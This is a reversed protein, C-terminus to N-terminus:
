SNCYTCFEYNARSFYNSSLFIEVKANFDLLLATTNVVLQNMWFDCDLHLIKRNSHM